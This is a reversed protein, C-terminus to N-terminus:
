SRAHRRDHNAVAFEGGPVVVVPMQGAMLPAVGISGRNQTSGTPPNTEILVLEFSLAAGATTPRSPKTISVSNPNQAERRRVSSVPSGGGKEEFLFGCRFESRSKLKNATEFIDLIM